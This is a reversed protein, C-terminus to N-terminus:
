RLQYALLNRVLCLLVVNEGLLDILNHLNFIIDKIINEVVQETLTHLQFITITDKSCPVDIKVKNKARRDKVHEGIKIFYKKSTKLMGKFIIVWKKRTIYLM